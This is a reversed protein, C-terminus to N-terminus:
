NVLVTTSIEDHEIEIETWENGIFNRVRSPSVEM